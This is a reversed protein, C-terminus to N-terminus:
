QKIDSYYQEFNETSRREYQELLVAYHRKLRELVNVHNIETIADSDECIMLYTSVVTLYLMISVEFYNLLPYKASVVTGHTFPHCITYLRDLQQLEAEQEPMKIKLFHFLGNISYPKEGCLSHYDSISDVWGYHLYDLKNRCNQNVRNQFCIKFPDSYYGKCCNREVEFAIMKQFKTLACENQKLVLLRLYLEIIGRCIPYCSDLINCELLCLAAISKRMIQEYLDRFNGCKHTLLSAYTSVAYISYPVPFFLFEDGAIVQYKRFFSAAYHRLRLNDVIDAALEQQYAEEKERERRESVSIFTTNARHVGIIHRCIEYEVAEFDGKLITASDLSFNFLYMLEPKLKEKVMDLVKFLFGTHIQSRFLQKMANREERRIAKSQQQLYYLADM